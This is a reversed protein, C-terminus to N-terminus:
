GQRVVLENGDPDVIDLVKMGDDTDQIEGVEAGSSRIAERYGVLDAVVFTFDISGGPARTGGGMGPVYLGLQAGNRSISAWGYEEAEFEVTFGLKDRYFATARSIDSVPIKHGDIQMSDIM